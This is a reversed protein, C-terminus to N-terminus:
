KWVTNAVDCLKREVMNHKCLEAFDLKSWESHRYDVSEYCYVADVKPLVQCEYGAFVTAPRTTSKDHSTEVFFSCSSVKALGLM